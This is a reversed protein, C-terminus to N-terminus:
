GDAVIEWLGVELEVAPDDAVPWCWAGFVVLSLTWYVYSIDAAVPLIVQQHLAGVIIHRFCGFSPAFDTLAMLARVLKGPNRRTADPRPVVANRLPIRCIASPPEASVDFVPVRWVDGDSGSM